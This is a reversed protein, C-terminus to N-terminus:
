MALARTCRAESLCGRAVIQTDKDARLLEAELIASTTSKCVNDVGGAGEKIGECCGCTLLKKKKATVWECKWPGSAKETDLSQM